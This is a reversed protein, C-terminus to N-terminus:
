DYRLRPPRCLVMKLRKLLPSIADDSDACCSLPDSTGETVVPLRQDSSGEQVVDPIRWLQRDGAEM